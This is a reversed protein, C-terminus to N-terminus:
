VSLSATIKKCRASASCFLLSGGKLYHAVRVNIM